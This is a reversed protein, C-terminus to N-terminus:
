GACTTWKEVPRSVLGVPLAQPDDATLQIALIAAFM